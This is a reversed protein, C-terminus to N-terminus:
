RQISININGDSINYVEELANKINVEQLTDSVGQGIQIDEVYIDSEQTEKQSAVILVKEVSEVGYESNIGLTVSIKVPYLGQQKVIESIQSEVEKQYGRLIAEQQAYEMDKDINRINSYEAKLSEILFSKDFTNEVRFLKMLPTIVIMVLLLGTFFKVYKKYNNNPLIHTLMAVLILYFAINKVWSYFQEIM